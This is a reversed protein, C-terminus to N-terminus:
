NRFNNSERILSLVLNEVDKKEVRITSLSFDKQNNAFDVSYVTTNGVPIEQWTLNVGDLNKNFSQTFRQVTSNNKPNLYTEVLEIKQGTKQNEYLRTYSDYGIEKAYAGSYYKGTLDFQNELFDIKTPAFSLPKNLDVYKRYQSINKFETSLKNKNFNGYQKLNNFKDRLIKKSKESIDAEELDSIIIGSSNELRLKEVEEFTLADHDIDKDLKTETKDLSNTLSLSDESSMESTNKVTSNDATASNEYLRFILYGFLIVIFIVISIISKNKLKLVM